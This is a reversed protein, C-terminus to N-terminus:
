EEVAPRTTTTTTGILVEDPVTISFLTSSASQVVALATQYSISPAVETAVSVFRVAQLPTPSTVYGYQAPSSELSEVSVVEGYAGAGAAPLVVIDGVALPIGQPVTVRLVGGGMGEAETFINPGFIYATVRTGPASVLRVLSSQAYTRAIVGVAINEQIYVIAGEVLGDTAGHDILFTDYPTQNPRALVSAIISSDKKLDLLASLAENEAQLQRVTFADDEREQLQNELSQIDGILAHQIRFYSPIRGSSELFWTQVSIIPSFVVSAAVGVRGRAYSLVAFGCLAFLLVLAIRQSSRSGRRSNTKM